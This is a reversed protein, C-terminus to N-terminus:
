YLIKKFAQFVLDPAQTANVTKLKEQKKYYEILPSTQAHYVELRKKIVEARDDERQILASGCQDCIGQKKPQAAQLHYMAGCKACTRRGTLRELLDADPVDFLVAHDIGRGRTALMQDLAEAQPLTRPFGDLVFGARCDENRTRDAILQVVVSDPVLAGRDMFSKAEKGLQSGAGIASRLMDGTSLQPWKVESILRKAQTGKGSGPPGLLVIIM